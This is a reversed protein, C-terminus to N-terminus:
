GALERAALLLAHGDRAREDVVRDHDQGVLRGAREVGPRADLDHREELVQVAGADRDHEDRVLGVDGAVGARIRVKRSPRSILSSATASGSRRAGISALRGRASRRPPLRGAHVDEGARADGEARQADVLQPARERHEADDDAHARDDGHHRHAGARLGAHGLLDCLRPEFRMM